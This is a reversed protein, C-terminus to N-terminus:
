CTCFLADPRTVNRKVTQVIGDEGKLPDGIMAKLITKQSKGIERVQSVLWNKTEEDM